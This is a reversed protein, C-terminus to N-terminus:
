NYLFSPLPTNLFKNRGPLEAGTPIQFGWEFEISNAPGPPPSLGWKGRFVGRFLAWAFNYDVEKPKLVQFIRIKVYLTDWPGHCNTFLKSHRRGHNTLNNSVL